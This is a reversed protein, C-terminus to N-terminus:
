EQEPSASHGPTIDLANRSGTLVDVARKLKAELYRKQNLLQRLKQHRAIALSLTSVQEPPCPLCQLQGDSNLSCLRYHPTAPTSGSTTGEVNPNELAECLQEVYGTLMTPDGHRLIAADTQASPPPQISQGVTELWGDVIPGEMYLAQISQVTQRLERHWAEVAMQIDQLVKIALAPNADHRHRSFAPRKGKPLHPLQSVQTNIPFPAVPTAPEMGRQSQSSAIDFSVPRPRPRPLEAKMSESSEPRLPGIDPLNAM